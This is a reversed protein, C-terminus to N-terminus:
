ITQLCQAPPPPSSSSSHIGLLSTARSSNRLPPYSIPSTTGHTTTTHLSSHRTQQLLLLAGVYKRVTLGHLTPFGTGCTPYGMCAICTDAHMLPTAFALQLAYLPSAHSTLNCSQSRPPSRPLDPSLRFPYHTGLAGLRGPM